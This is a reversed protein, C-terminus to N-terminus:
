PQNARAEVLEFHEVVRQELYPYFPNWRLRLMGSAPIQIVGKEGRFALDGLSIGPSEDPQDGGYVPDSGPFPLAVHSLSYIGAPWTLGTDRDTPTAQNAEWTREIVKPDEPSANTLIRFRFQRDPKALIEVADEKPDKKLLMEIEPTRNLDFATLDHGNAPLHSFLDRVLARTSVTSDVASQFTLTRPFDTLQGAASLKALKARNVGTLEYALNGANVPFSSYKFPDYEPSVDNWNLKDLRLVRGIREQWIAFAAMGTVGIEPSILALRDVRPLESDELTSLAYHVALAGGNSYGIIHLPQGGAKEHLHRMALTVAVAMDQWTTQTLASPATGHGPIRLAVVHAGEAHLREGLVRLSYPSDSLGHLLLIGAKPKDAPSGPALEFSRNWNPSWRRPDALSGRHYRNVQRQDEVEIHDYVEEDLQRFLRDELALYEAFNAVPSSTTFEEDLEVTHWIKLDPKRNLILIGVSLLMLFAGLAGYGTTKLFRVLLPRAALTKLARKPVSKLTILNM